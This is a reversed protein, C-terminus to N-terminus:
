RTDQSQVTLRPRRMLMLYQFGEIPSALWGRSDLQQLQPVFGDVWWGGEREYKRGVIASRDELKGSEGLVSDVEVQRIRLEVGEVELGRLKQGDLGDGWGRRRDQVGAAVAEIDDVPVGVGREQVVRGLVQAPQM